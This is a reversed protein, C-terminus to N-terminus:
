GNTLAVSHAAVVSGATGESTKAKISIHETTIGLWSALNAAMAAIHPALKPADLIIVSDINVIHFGRTALLRQVQELFVRGSADKWKPEHDPFLRGIDGLGAAGLLADVVAHCLVDGDSHAIPGRGSSIEVGGLVLKRGEALRHLDYGIGCRM